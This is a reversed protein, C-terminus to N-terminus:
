VALLRHHRLLRFIVVSSLIPTLVVLVEFEVVGPEAPHPYQAIIAWCAFGLLVINCVIAVMRVVANNSSVDHSTTAEEPAKERKQFGLRGGGAGSQSIVFVNLIPILFLLLSFVIYGAGKPPGDTLTVMCTFGFLVINCIIAVIKMIM